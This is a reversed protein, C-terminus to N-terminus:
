YVMRQKRPAESRWFVELRAIGTNEPNELPHHRDSAYGEPNEAVNRLHWTNSGLVNIAVVVKRAQCNQSMQLVYHFLSRYQRSCITITICITISFCFSPPLVTHITFTALPRISLLWSSRGTSASRRGCSSPLWSSPFFSALLRSLTPIVHAMRALAKRKCNVIAVSTFTEVSRSSINDVCHGVAAATVKSCVPM